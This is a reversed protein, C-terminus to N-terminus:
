RKVKKGWVSEAAKRWFGKVKSGDERIHGKVWVKGSKAAEEDTLDSLSSLSEEAAGWLSSLADMGANIKDTASKAASDLAKSAEEFEKTAAATAQDVAKDAKDMLPKAAKMADAQLADVQGLTDATAKEMQAPFPKVRVNSGESKSKMGEKIMDKPVIKKSEEKPASAKAMGRALDMMKSGLSAMESEVADGLEEAESWASELEKMASDPLADLYNEAAVITDDFSKGLEALTDGTDRATQGMANKASNFAAGTDGAASSISSKADGAMKSVQGAKDMVDDHAAKAEEYVGKALSTTVETAADVLMSGATFGLYGLGMAGAAILPAAMVVSVAGLVGITGVAAIGGIGVATSIVGHALVGAMMGGAVDLFAGGSITGGSIRDLREDERKDVQAELDKRLEKTRAEDKETKDAARAESSNKRRGKGKAKADKDKQFIADSHTPLEDDYMSYKKGTIPNIADPNLWNAARHKDSLSALKNEAANKKGTHESRAKRRNGRQNIGKQGGAAKARLTAEAASLEGNPFNTAANAVALSLPKRDSPVGNSLLVQAADAAKPNANSVSRALAVSAAALAMDKKADRRARRSMRGTARIAVAQGIENKM